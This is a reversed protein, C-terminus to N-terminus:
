LPSIARITRLNSEDYLQDINENFRGFEYGIRPYPMFELEVVKVKDDKTKIFEYVGVNKTNDLMDKNTLGIKGIKKNREAVNKIKSLLIINNLKGAMTDSHTSIMMKKGLNCFRVLARAVGGQLLPHVSNEVEDYYIYGMKKNSMLITSLVSLEHIMSSAYNLPIISDKEKYVFQGKEYDLKGNLLQEEVFEILNSEEQDLNAKKTYTQIFDLYEAIPLPLGANISTTEAFMYRYLMQLGARAAPVFLQKEDENMGIIDVLVRHALSNEIDDVVELDEFIIEREGNPYQKELSVKSSITAIYFFDEYEEFEISVRELPIMNNFNDVLFKEKNEKLYLNIKSEVDKYWEKAFRIYKVYETEVIKVNSYDAKWKRILEVIGYILEMLLTKGSNNDGVFLLFEDLYVDASEIKAFKNVKIKTRM